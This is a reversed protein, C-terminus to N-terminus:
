RYSHHESATTQAPGAMDFLQDMDQASLVLSACCVLMLAAHAVVIHRRFPPPPKLLAQVRQPVPGGTVALDRAPHRAAALAARAVARAVLSRDDVVAAAEEDAWRELVFAGTRRVPLLLPNVAATLHLVLLFIHHRHRLHTREHAILAGREVASLTRLMGSTVVIRGPSSPLAYAAPVPDDVVSLEEGPKM